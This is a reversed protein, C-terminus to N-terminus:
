QEMAHALDYMSRYVQRVMMKDIGRKVLRPGKTQFSRKVREPTVSPIKVSIGKSDEDNYLFLDTQVKKGMLRFNAEVRQGDKMRGFVHFSNGDPRAYQGTLKIGRNRFVKKAFKVAPKVTTNTASM